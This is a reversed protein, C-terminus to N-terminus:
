INAGSRRRLPNRNQDSQPRPVCLYESSSLGRRGPIPACHRNPDISTAAGNASQDAVSAAGARVSSRGRVDVDVRRSGVAHGHRPGVSRLSLSRNCRGNGCGASHGCRVRHRGVAVNRTCGDVRAFSRRVGTGDPDVRLNQPRLNHLTRVFLGAAILVTLSLAVQAAVVIKRFSVSQSDGISAASDTKLTGALDGRTVHLAPFLGFIVGTVIALASTFLLARVDPHVDLALTINSRPLFHLLMPGCWFSVAIGLAGGLLALLLSEALMQRVLRARGAGVSCRVALERRRAAARALLM